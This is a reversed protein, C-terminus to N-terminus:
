EFSTRYGTRELDKIKQRILGKLVRNQQAVPPLVIAKFTTQSDCFDTVFTNRTFKSNKAIELSKTITWLEVDLIEKNKGLCFSKEKWQRDENWYVATETCGYGLKSGDPWLVLVPRNNRAAELVKKKSKIIVNATVRNFIMTEVPEVGEVPDIAYDITM